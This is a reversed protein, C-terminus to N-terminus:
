TRCVDVRLAPPPLLRWELESSGDPDGVQPHRAQCQTKEDFSFVVARDPPDMYLGVV